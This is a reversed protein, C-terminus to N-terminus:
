EAIFVLNDHGACYAETTGGAPAYVYVTGAEDFAADSIECDKPLRIKVLGTGKFTDQGIAACTHADVVAMFAVGEFAGEEIAALDEPMAFDPDGFEPAIMSTVCVAQTDLHNEDGVVKYWVYYTGADTGTPISTAYDETAETETGLAYQMEGGALTSDDVTLLSKETGDYRRNNAAVTAPVADAKDITVTVEKTAQAYTQTEAATVVVTATGAKKVTLAGTAADVDIYDASGDKVAYSIAGGGTAPDTVSASVGKDTEGYTVTVDDADITQALKDTITVTIPTSALAEYYDDEAVTVNVTVDGTDAGSTLVSGELACGCADNDIEYSVAGTAGNMEVNESLDVTNGGKIVTATGTVTAPNAGKDITVTVEKTAQACTQSKAATVVVTATDVKKIILAGTSADVDIYDASGDKVAYSIAGSGTAPDTVSASVRGETEGYTVTVDDASLTQALKKLVSVKIPKTGLAEYNEDEAVTVNVTVNGTDEGSTLISGELACDFNLDIDDIEYSVAGTAGNLEVNESLDVTNGGKIVSATGKVTTPNDAKGVTVTVNVDSVSNYNATDEPTFDAKFTHEGANGVSTATDDVWAWTGAINGAPNALAVDALTQGYIASPSPPTLTPDAKDITYGVSVSVSQDDGEDTRVGTLTLQAMYDGADTPASGLADGNRTYTGGSKTARYYEIDDVAVNLGTADNFADLGDLTAAASGEGDYVNLAPAILALTTRDDELPCTDSGGCAATITNAQGDTGAAYTFKHVHFVKDSFVVASLKLKLAPRIAYTNNAYGGADQSGNATVYWITTEDCPERLWWADPYRRARGLVKFFENRYNLLYLKAEVETDSDSGKVKVTEIADAVDKFSSNTLADLSSKILSESYKKNRFDESFKSSGFDNNAALLTVTGETASTSNDEIIYWKYGNFLVQKSALDTDEDTNTPILSTYAETAANAVSAMGLMMVTWLILGL